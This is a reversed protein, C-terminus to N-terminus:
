DHDFHRRWHSRGLGAGILFLCITSGILFWHLTATSGTRYIVFGSINLKSLPQSHLQAGIIGGCILGMVVPLPISKAEANLSVGGVFVM